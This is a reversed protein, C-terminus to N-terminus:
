LHNVAGPTFRVLHTPTAVADVKQDHSEVPLLTKGFESSNVL